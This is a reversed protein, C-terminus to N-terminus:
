FTLEGRPLSVQVGAMAEILAEPDDGNEGAEELAAELGKAAAYGAETGQSVLQGTEEEAAQVFATNDPTDLARSWYFITQAGVHWDEEGALLFEDTIAGHGIVP